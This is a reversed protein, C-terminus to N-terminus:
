QPLIAGPSVSRVQRFTPACRLSACPLAFRLGARTSYSRLQDLAIRMQGILQLAQPSIHRKGKILVDLSIDLVESVGLLVDFSIGRKGLEIKGLHNPTISLAAALEEQTMGREKRLAKLRRGFEVQNFRM